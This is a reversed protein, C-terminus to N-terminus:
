DMITFLTQFNSYQLVQAVHPPCQKIVLNAADLKSFDRLILLLGLGTSDIAECAKLDIVYRQYPPQSEFAARFEAQLAMTFYGTIAIVLVKGGSAERTSVQSM